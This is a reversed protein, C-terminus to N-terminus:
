GTRYQIVFPLRTAHWAAFCAGRGKITAVLCAPDGDDRDVPSITIKAFIARGLALGFVGPQDSFVGDGAPCRLQGLGAVGGLRQPYRLQDNGVPPVAAPVVDLVAPRGALLRSDFRHYAVHPFQIAALRDFREAGECELGNPLRPDGSRM